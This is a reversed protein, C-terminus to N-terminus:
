DKGKNVLYKIYDLAQSKQEETMQSMLDAIANDLNQSDSDYGLLWGPTVGLAQAITYLRSQKPAYRGARYSAIISESLGTKRSLEAASMGSKSLALNLRKSFKDIYVQTTEKTM